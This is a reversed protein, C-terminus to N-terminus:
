EVNPLVNPPLVPLMKVMLSVQDQDSANLLIAPLWEIFNPPSYRAMSFSWCFGVDDNPRKLKVRANVCASANRASAADPLARPM